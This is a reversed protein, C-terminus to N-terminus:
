KDKQGKKPNVVADDNFVDKLIRNVATGMAYTALQTTINKGSKELVDAIFAKGKSATTEVHSLDAYRKELELRSIKARLEDDSLDKITKKKVPANGDDADGEDKSRRKSGVANKGKTFINQYWKMGKRGYHYLENEM